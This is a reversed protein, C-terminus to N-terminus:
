TSCSGGPGGFSFTKGMTPQTGFYTLTFCNTNSEYKSVKSDDIDLTQNQENIVTLEAFYSSEKFHNSAFHGNGMPPSIGDPSIFTNGGYRVLSVGPRLHTFIADPWYGIQVITTDLVYQQGGITSINPIHAGVHMQPHVQIFGPCQTNYCGTKKYGDATWYTTMYTRDDGYLRPHVGWGAQISNLESPPGNELWIQAKSYQNMKVKPNQINILARVGHYVTDDAEVELTAFHQGPFETNLIPFSENDVKKTKQIPVMGKPCPKNPLVFASLKATTSVKKTMFESSFTPKTQIKHNKLAPHDFAPQKYIDVCIVSDIDTQLFSNSDM